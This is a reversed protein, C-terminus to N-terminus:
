KEDFEYLQSYKSELDTLERALDEEKHFKEM